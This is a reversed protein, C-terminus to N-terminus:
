YEVFMFFDLFGFRFDIIEFSFFYFVDFYGWFYVVLGYVVLILVWFCFVLVVFQIYVVVEGRVEFLDGICVIEDRVDLCGDLMFLGYFIFVIM